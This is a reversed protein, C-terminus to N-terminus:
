RKGRVERKGHLKSVGIADRLEEKETNCYRKEKEVVGRQKCLSYMVVKPSQTEKTRNTRVPPVPPHQQFSLFRLLFM